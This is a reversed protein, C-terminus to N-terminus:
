IGEPLDFLGRSVTELHAVLADCSALDAYKAEMDMLNIAHSVESRDFCGDVAVAVRYNRSFADIVTTRVCGSTSVGCVILSDV